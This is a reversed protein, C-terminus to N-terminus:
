GDGPLARRTRLPPRASWAAATMSGSRAGYCWPNDPESSPSLDVALPDPESADQPFSRLGVIPLPDRTQGVGHTRAALQQAEAEPHPAVCRRRWKVNMQSLLLADLDDAARHQRDATSDPTHEAGPPRDRSRGTLRVGDSRRASACDLHDNLEAWRQAELAEDLARGQRSSQRSPRTRRRRVRGVHRARGSVWRGTIV